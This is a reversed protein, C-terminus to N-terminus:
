IAEKGFTIQPKDYQFVWQKIMTKVDHKNLKFAGKLMVSLMKVIEENLNEIHFTHM